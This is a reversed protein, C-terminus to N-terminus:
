EHMLAVLNGNGETVCFQVEVPEGSKHIMPLKLWSGLIKKQGTEAFRKFGAHHAEHHEKPVLSDVQRGKLDDTSYGLLEVSNGQVDIINQGKDAVIIVMNKM